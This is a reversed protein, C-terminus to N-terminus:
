KIFLGCKLFYKFLHRVQEWIMVGGEGLTGRGKDETPIQLNFRKFNQIRCFTTFLIIKFLVTKRNSKSHAHICGHLRAQSM